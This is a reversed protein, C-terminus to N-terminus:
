TESIAQALQTVSYSNLSFLMSVFYRPFRADLGRLLGSLISRSKLALKLSILLRLRFIGNTLKVSKSCNKNRQPGARVVSLRGQRLPTRSKSELFVSVQVRCPGPSSITIKALGGRLSPFLRATSIPALAM